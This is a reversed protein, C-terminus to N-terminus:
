STRRRRRQASRAMTRHAASSAIHLAARSTRLALKGLRYLIPVKGTQKRPIWGVNSSLAYQRFTKDTQNDIFRTRMLAMWTM